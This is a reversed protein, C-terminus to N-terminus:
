HFAAARSAGPLSSWNSPAVLGCSGPSARLVAHIRQALLRRDQGVAGGVSAWASCTEISGERSTEPGPGGRSFYPPPSPRHQAFCPSPARTCHFMCVHSPGRERLAYRYARPFRGANPPSSRSLGASWVRPHIVVSVAQRERPSLSPCMHDALPQFMTSSVSPRALRSGPVPPSRKMAPINRRRMSQRAEM